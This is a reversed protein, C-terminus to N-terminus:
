YDYRVRYLRAGNPRGFRATVRDNVVAGYVVGSVARWENQVLSSQVSSSQLSSSRSDGDMEEVVYEGPEPRVVFTLRLEGGSVESSVIELPEPEIQLANLFVAPWLLPPVANTSMPNRRGQILLQGNAGVTAVFSFRYQENSVPLASNTFQYAYRALVGNAYWDSARIPGAVADFSWLTVQVRNSPVLNEIQLNLGGSATTDRSYVCDQLLLSETFAAQNTPLAHSRDNYGRNQGNGTLTIRFPGITRMTANTQEVTDAINSTIVFPTFGPFTTTASNNTRHNFDISL